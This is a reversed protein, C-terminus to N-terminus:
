DSCLEAVFADAALPAGTAHRILDRWDRSKGPAYLRQSLLAGTEPRSVYRDWADAGGGAAQRLLTRQLQSALIEGLLYNHYYVPAVSFHIKSAWDPAQRGEPRHLMQFREVLEWWRAPLDQDPDAYLEREMHCMVLCWRTTVLLQERGARALEHGVQHAEAANVQAWHRLWAGNRSLRGFLMASAETTLTHAPTRLLWPLEPDIRCDYVAHGLEHLLVSMWFENPRLNCLVRVDAGRDISLCFAHQSKGPKEYLDARALLDAVELGIAGFFRETMEELARDRFHPDLDVATPPAEQFFPDNMHWPRIESPGVGFRRRLEQDLGARYREFLPASGADLEDLLAFLEDEDLEDLTLM